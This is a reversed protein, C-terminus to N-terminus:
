WKAKDCDDFQSKHNAPNNYLERSQDLNETRGIPDYFTVGNIANKDALCNCSVMIATKGSPTFFVVQHPLSPDRLTIYKPRMPM